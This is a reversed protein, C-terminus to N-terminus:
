LTEKMAEALAEEDVPPEEEGEAFAKKVPPPPITVFV